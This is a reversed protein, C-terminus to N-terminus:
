RHFQNFQGRGQRDPLQTNADIHSPFGVEIEAEFPYDPPWEFTRTKPITATRLEHKCHSRCTFITYNSTISISVILQSFM